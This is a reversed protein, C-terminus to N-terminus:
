ASQGEPQAGPPDCIAGLVTRVLADEAQGDDVRAAQMEASAAHILAMLMSLHWSAPVDSRFSGDAQGRAILPELRALVSHHKSRVDAHPLQTTIAVVADESTM